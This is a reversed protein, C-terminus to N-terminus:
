GDQRDTDEPGTQYHIPEVGLAGGRDDVLNPPDFVLAEDLQLCDGGVIGRDLLGELTRDRGGVLVPENASIGVSLAKALDEILGAFQGAFLVGGTLAMHACCTNLPLPRGGLTISPSASTFFATAACPLAMPYM